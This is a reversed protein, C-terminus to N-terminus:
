HLRRHFLALGTLGLGLLLGTSPEPILRITGTYGGGGQYFINDLSEGSALTGTLRGFLESIDGYPVPSDNVEFGYGM